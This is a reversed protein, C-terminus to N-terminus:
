SATRGNWWRRQKKANGWGLRELKVCAIFVGLVVLRGWDATGVKFEKLFWVVRVM